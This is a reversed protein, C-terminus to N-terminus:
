DPGAIETGGSEPLSGIFGANELGHMQDKSACAKLKKLRVEELKEDDTLTANRPHPFELGNLTNLISWLWDKFNM